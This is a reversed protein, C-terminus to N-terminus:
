NVKKYKRAFIVIFILALVSVATSLKYAAYFSYHTAMTGCIYGSLIATLCSLLNLLGIATGLINKPVLDSICAVSLIQSTSRQVGWFVVGMVGFIKYPYSFCILSLSLTVFSIVLVNSRGIKDSLRGAPYSVLVSVANFFGITGSCFWMPLGTQKLSLLMYGEPTRALMFIFMIGLFVWYQKSLYAINSIKFSNFEKNSSNNDVTKKNNKKEKMYFTCVFIAIFSPISVFTITHKISINLGFLLSVMWPGFVCGLTKFTMILGIYAGKKDAPSQQATFSDRPTASIGNGLRDFIKSVVVMAANHAFIFFPRSIASFITGLLFMPKSRKLYDGIIGSFLRFIQSIAETANEILGVSVLSIGLVERLYFPSISYFAATSIAVLFTTFGVGLISTPVSKLTKYVSMNVM